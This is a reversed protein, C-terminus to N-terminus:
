RTNVEALGTEGDGVLDRLRQRRRDHGLVDRQRADGVRAMVPVLLGGLDAAQDVGVGLHPGDVVGRQAQLPQDAVGSHVGTGHDHAGFRQDVHDRQPLAGLVARHDRAPIVLPALLDAQQLHVEEPQAVQRDDAVRDVVHFGVPSDVDVQLRQRQVVFRGVLQQAAAVCQAHELEVAARHAVQQAAHLGGAELVDDRDDRQISGARHALVGVVVVGVALVVPLGDLRDMGLEGLRQLVDEGLRVAQDDVLFLDHADGLLDRAIRQCSGVNQAFGHALLLPFDEVLLILAECFAHAGVAKESRAM